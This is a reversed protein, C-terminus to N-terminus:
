AEGGAAAPRETDLMGMDALVCALALAPHSLWPDDHEQSYTCHIGRFRDGQQGVMSITSASCNPCTPDVAGAARSRPGYHLSVHGEILHSEVAEVLKWALAGDVPVAFFDPLLGSLSAGPPTWYIAGGVDRSTFGCARALMANLKDRDRAYLARVDASTPKSM